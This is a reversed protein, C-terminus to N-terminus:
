MGSKQSINIAVVDGIKRKVPLKPNFIINEKKKIPTITVDKSEIDSM